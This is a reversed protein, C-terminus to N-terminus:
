GLKKIRAVLRSLKRGVTNPHLVGKLAGRHMEPQAVQLAAKAAASDGKTIAEEVKKVYTRIRSVRAKNVGTARITRRARKKASQHQAM